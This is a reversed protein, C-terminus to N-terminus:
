HVAGSLLSYSLGTDKRTERVVDASFGFARLRGVQLFTGSTLQNAM